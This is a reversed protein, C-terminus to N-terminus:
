RGSMFDGVLLFFNVIGVIFFQGTDYKPELAASGIEKSGLERNFYL